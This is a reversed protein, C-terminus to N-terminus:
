GGGPWHFSAVDPTRLCRALSRSTAASASRWESPRGGILSLSLCFILCILASTSTRRVARRARSSRGSGFSSSRRWM